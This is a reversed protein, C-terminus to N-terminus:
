EERAQVQSQQRKDKRQTQRLPCQSEISYCQKLLHLVAIYIWRQRQNELRSLMNLKAERWINCVRHRLRRWPIRSSKRWNKQHRMERKRQTCFALKQISGKWAALKLIQTLFSKWTVLTVLLSDNVWVGREEGSCVHVCVLAFMFLDMPETGTRKMSYWMCSSSLEHNLSNPQPSPTNMQKCIWKERVTFWSYNTRLHVETNKDIQLLAVRKERGSKNLYYTEINLTSSVSQTM